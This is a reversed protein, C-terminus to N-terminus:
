ELETEEGTSYIILCDSLYNPNIKESKESICYDEGCCFCTINYPSHGFREEFIECAEKESAEIIITRWKEKEKGGSSMDFFRTFM